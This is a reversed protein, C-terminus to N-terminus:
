LDESFCITFKQPLNMFDSGECCLKFFTAIVTIDETKAFEFVLVAALRKTKSYRIANLGKLYVPDPKEIMSTIFDYQERNDTTVLILKGNKEYNRVKVMFIALNIM